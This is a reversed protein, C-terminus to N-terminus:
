KVSYNCKDGSLQFDTRNVTQVVACCLKCRLYSKLHAFIRIDNMLIDTLCTLISKTLTLFLKHALDKSM